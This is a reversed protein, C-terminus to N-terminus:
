RERSGETQRALEAEAAIYGFAAWNATQLIRRFIEHARAEDGNYLYWNAVGYGQTAVQV